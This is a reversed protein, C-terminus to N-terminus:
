GAGGIPEYAEGSGDLISPQSSLCNLLTRSDATQNMTRLYLTAVLHSGDQGPPVGGLPYRTTTFAGVRIVIPNRVCKALVSEAAQRQIGTKFV